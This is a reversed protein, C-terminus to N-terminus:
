RIHLGFGIFFSTNTPSLGMINLMPMRYRNTKYTCDMFLIHPNRRLMQISSKHICFVSIIQNDEKEYIIKWDGSDALTSILAQTPTRGALFEIYLKRQLNYIDRPELLCLTDKAQLGALIQSPRIGQQIQSIITQRHKALSQRRYITHCRLDTPGHSHEGCMTRIV